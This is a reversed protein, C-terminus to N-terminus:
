ARTNTLLYYVFLQRTCLFNHLKVLSTMVGFIYPVNPLNTGGDGVNKQIRLELYYKNGYNKFASTRDYRYVDIM